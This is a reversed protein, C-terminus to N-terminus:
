FVPALFCMGVNFFASCKDVATVRFQAQSDCSGWAYSGDRKRKINKKGQLNLEANKQTKVGMRNAAPSM